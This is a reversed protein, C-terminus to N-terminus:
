QHTSTSFTTYPLMGGIFDESGNGMDSSNRHVFETMSFTWKRNHELQLRQVSMFESAFSPWFLTGAGMNVCLCMILSTNAIMNRFTSRYFLLLPLMNTWNSIMEPKDISSPTPVNASMTHTQMHTNLNSKHLFMCSQEWIYLVHTSLGATHLECQSPFIVSSIVGSECNGRGTSRIQITLSLM